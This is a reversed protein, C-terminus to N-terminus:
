LKKDYLDRLRSVYLSTADVVGYRYNIIDSILVSTYMSTEAQYSDYWGRAVLMSRAMVQDLGPTSAFSRLATVGGLMSAIQPSVDSGSFQSQVTFATVPNASSKLVAVGYMRMGTSFTNYGRTQPLTTMEFEGRPNRAKFSSLEGTYGIYMAVREAVFRDDAKGLSDSWTYVTQGPDGFQTFYRNVATLPRVSADIVSPENANVSLSLEDAQNYVKIIATQGLQSVIAMIIDKAYPVNPTGLAISSEIFENKERVTLSTTMATVEDWYLPPTPFGHKSLMARNYILVMPEISVPLALAGYRSYFISAGDVYTDKFAKEGLSTPPFPTIRSEESLIIQYPTLILDPGVGSALAELLRQNFEKEPIYKYRVAYTKAKPNFSQVIPNMQTEPITGWMMVDGQVKVAQNGLPVKGSFILVSLLVAFVGAGLLINKLM